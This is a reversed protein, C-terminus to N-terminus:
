ASANTRQIFGKVATDASAATKSAWWAGELAIYREAAEAATEGDKRTVPIDVNAQLGPIHIRVILREGYLRWTYEGVRRDNLWAIEERLSHFFMADTWRSRDPSSMRATLTEIRLTRATDDRETVNYVINTKSM